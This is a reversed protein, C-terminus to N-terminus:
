RPDKRFQITGAVLCPRRLNPFLRDREAVRVMYAPQAHIAPVAVGADLRRTEGVHRRGLGAHIAMRLDPARARCQLRHPGTKAASLRDTPRPNVVQRIEHIEIVTNVDVLSDTTLAAM